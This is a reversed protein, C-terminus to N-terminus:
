NGCPEGRTDSIYGIKQRNELTIPKPLGSVAAFPPQPFSWAFILFLKVAFSPKVMKM